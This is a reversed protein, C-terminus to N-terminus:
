CAYFRAYKYDVFIILMDCNILYTTNKKSLM